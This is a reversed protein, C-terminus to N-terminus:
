NLTDFLTDWEKVFIEGKTSLAYTDLSIINKKVPIINDQTENNLLQFYLRFMEGISATGRVLYSLCIFSYYFSPFLSYDFLCQSFLKDLINIKNTDDDCQWIWCNNRKICKHSINNYSLTIELSDIEKYYTINNSDVSILLNELYPICEKYRGDVYTYTILSRPEISIKNCNIITNWKKRRKIFKNMLDYFNIKTKYKKYLEKVSEKMYNGYLYQTLLSNKYEKSFESHHLFRPAWCICQITNLLEKNEYITIKDKEIREKLQTLIFPIDNNPYLEWFLQLVQM